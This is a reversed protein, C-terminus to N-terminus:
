GELSSLGMIQKGHEDLKPNGERGGIRKLGERQVEEEEQSKQDGGLGLCPWPQPALSPDTDAHSQLDRTGRPPGFCGLGEAPHSGGSFGSLVSQQMGSFM